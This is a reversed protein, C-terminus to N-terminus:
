LHVGQRVTAPQEQRSKTRNGPGHVIFSPASVAPRDSLLSLGPANDSRCISRSLNMAGPGPIKGGRFARAHADQPIIPLHVSHLMQGLHCCKLVHVRALTM